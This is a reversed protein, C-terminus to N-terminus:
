AQVVDGEKYNKTLIYGQVQPSIEANILGNLTGIWDQHVSVKKQVVETVLVDMPPPAAKPESKGCSGLLAIAIALLALRPTAGPEAGRNTM